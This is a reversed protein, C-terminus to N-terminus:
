LARNCNLNYKKPSVKWGTSLVRKIHTMMWSVWFIDIHFNLYPSIAHNNFTIHVYYIYYFLM